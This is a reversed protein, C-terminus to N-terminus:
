STGLFIGFTAITIYGIGDWAGMTFIHMLNGGFCRGMKSSFRPRASKLVWWRPYDFGREEDEGGCSEAVAERAGPEVCRRFVGELEEWSVGM